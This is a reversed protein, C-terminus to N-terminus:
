RGLVHMFLAAITTLCLFLFLLEVTKVSLIKAIMKKRSLQKDKLIREKKAQEFISISDFERMAANTMKAEKRYHASATILFMKAMSINGLINFYLGRLLFVDARYHPHNSEVISVWTELQKSLLKFDLSNSKLGPDKFRVFLDLLILEVGFPVFEMKADDRFKKADSFTKYRLTNIARTTFFRIKEPDPKPRTKRFEEPSKYFIPHDNGSVDIRNLNHKEMLESARTKALASEFLNAKSEALALLKKVKEIAKNRANSAHESM